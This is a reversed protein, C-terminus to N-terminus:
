PRPTSPQPPPRYPRAARKRPASWENWFQPRQDDLWSDPLEVPALGYGVATPSLLELVFVAVVEAELSKALQISWDLARASGSSGDFGVLIRKPVRPQMASQTEM